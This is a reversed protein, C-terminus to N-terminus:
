RQFWYAQDPVIWHKCHIRWLYRCSTWHDIAIRSSSWGLCLESEPSVKNTMIFFFGFSIFSSLYNRTIMIESHKFIVSFTKYFMTQFGSTQPPWITNGALDIQILTYIGINFFNLHSVKPSKWVSHLLALQTVTLLTLTTWMKMAKDDPLVPHGLLNLIPKSINALSALM